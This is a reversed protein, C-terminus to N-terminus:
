ACQPPYRWSSCSHLMPFPPLCEGINYLLYLIYDGNFRGGIVVCFWDCKCSNVRWWVGDDLFSIMTQQYLKSWSPLLLQTTIEVAGWGATQPISPFDSVGDWCRGNQLWGSAGLASGLRWTFCHSDQAKRCCMHLGQSLGQSTRRHGLDQRWVHPINHAPRELCIVHVHDSAMIQLILNLHNQQDEWGPLFAGGRNCHTENGQYDERQHWKCSVEAKGALTKCGLGANPRLNGSSLCGIRALLM